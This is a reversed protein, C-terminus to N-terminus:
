LPAWDGAAMRRQLDREAEVREGFSWAWKERTDDVMWRDGHRGVSVTERRGARFEAAWRRLYTVPELHPQFRRPPTATPMWQVAAGVQEGRELIQAATRGQAWRRAYPTCDVVRGNEVVMFVENPDGPITWWAVGTDDDAM